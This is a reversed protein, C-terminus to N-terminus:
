KIAMIHAVIRVTFKKKGLYSILGLIGALLFKSYTIQIIEKDERLISGYIDHIVSGTHLYAIAWECHCSLECSYKQLFM